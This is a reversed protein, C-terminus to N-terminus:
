RGRLLYRHAVDVLCDGALAQRGLLVPTLMRSRDAITMRIRKHVPGLRILVEIIPRHEKWGGTNKVWVRGVIPTQVRAVREPHRSNLALELHAMEGGPSGEEVMCRIVGLASTRAGSDMKVRIHKLGWEPFDVFEKWGVVVRESVSFDAPHKPSHSPM